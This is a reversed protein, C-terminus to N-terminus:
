RGVGGIEENQCCLTPSEGVNHQWFPLCCPRLTM